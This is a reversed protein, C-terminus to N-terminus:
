RVGQSSHLPGARPRPDEWCTPPMTDAGLHRNGQLHPGLFEGEGGEQSSGLWVVSVLSVTAM